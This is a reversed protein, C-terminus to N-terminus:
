QSLSAKNQSLFYVLEIRLTQPPEKVSPCQCNGPCQGTPFQKSFWVSNIILQCIACVIVKKGHNEKHSQLLFPSRHPKYQLLDVVAATLFPVSFKKKQRKPNVCPRHYQPGVVGTPFVPSIHFPLTPSFMLSKSLDEQSLWRQTALFLCYWPSTKQSIHPSVWPLMKDRM